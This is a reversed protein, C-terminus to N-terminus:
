HMMFAPNAEILLVYGSGGNAAQSTTASAIAYVDGGSGGHGGSAGGGGGGTRGAYTVSTSNSGKAGGDVYQMGSDNIFPAALVVIGGGGGGGPGGWAASNGGSGAVAVVNGVQNVETTSALIVIGGAGGGCTPFGPSGNARITGFNIIDDNAYVKLLGGGQGGAYGAGSGGGFQFNNFASRATVKPIAMGGPGGYLFQIDNVGDNHLSGSAPIRHSDGPHPYTRFGVTPGVSNTNWSQSTGGFPRVEITGNNTFTGSCRLITGAPVTFTAGASVSCNMYNPLGSTPPTLSWDTSTTIALDGVGGDGGFLTNVANELVAFNENVSAAIAPTGSSFQTPITVSDATAVSSAALCFFFATLQLTMKM